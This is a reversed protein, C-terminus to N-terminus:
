GPPPPPIFPAPPPVDVTWVDYAPGFQALCNLSFCRIYILAPLLVVTGLYPLMALCCTFCCALFSLLILAIALAIRLLIFLATPGPHRRILAMAELFAARASLGHRFMLPIGWERFIFLICALPIMAALYLLGLAVLGLLMGGEPWHPHQFLPFALIVAPVVLVIVVGFTLALFILSLLFVQNASRAYFKWPQAIAARNRVINDLILFQGRAGLWYLLLVFAFVFVVVAIVLLIMLGAQLGFLFHSFDTSFPHSTQSSLNASPNFNQRYSSNFGNGGSMLGALFASFGIVFWKGLDFPRFLIIVMREWALDFALTFNIM